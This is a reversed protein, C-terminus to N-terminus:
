LQGEISKVTITNVSKDTTMNRAFEKMWVWSPAIRAFIDFLGVVSIGLWLGLSSGIEVLLNEFGYIPLRRELRVQVDFYLCVVDHTLTTRAYSRLFTSHASLISCPPLCDDSLHGQLKWASRIFLGLWTYLDQHAPRKRIPGTCQNNPSMWPIMCDLVPLVKGEMEQAVCDHFSQYNENPYETCSGDKTNKIRETLQIRYDSYIKNGETSDQKSLIKDGTMLHDSLQFNSSYAPDSVTITYLGDKAEIEVDQKSTPYVQLIKCVGVPLLFKTVTDNDNLRFKVNETGSTYLTDLLDQFSQTGTPGSWSVDDSDVTGTLFGTAGNYALAQAKAYNFQSTKCISVLVPRDLSELSKVGPSSIVQPNFYKNLAAIMQILFFTLAVVLVVKKLMKAVAVM